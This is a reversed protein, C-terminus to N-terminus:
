AIRVQKSFKFNEAMATTHYVLSGYVNYVDLSVLGNAMTGDVSFDGTNPNPYLIISHSNNAVSSIGDPKVSVYITDRTTCIERFSIDDLAFDNGYPEGTAEHICINASTASGNNWEIDFKRWTGVATDTTFSDISTGNIKFLLKSQPKYLLTAWGSLNYSTN